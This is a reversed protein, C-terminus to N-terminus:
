DMQAVGVLLKFTNSHKDLGRSGSHLYLHHNKQLSKQVIWSLEVTKTNISVNQYTVCYKNETKGHYLLSQTTM